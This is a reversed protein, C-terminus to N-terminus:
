PSTTSTPGTPRRRWGTTTTSWSCRTRAAPRSGSASRRGRARASAPAPCCRRSPHRHHEAPGGRDGVGEHGQGCCRGQWWVDLRTRGAPVVFTQSLISDGKTATLAGARGARTGRHHHQTSTTTRGSSAWGSLRREFTGNSVGTRPKPATTWITRLPTARAAHGLPALGYADQLTRLLTYHNMWESYLGPRVRQGVLLTAIQNVTGGANEDFTVVLLSNHTMAWRAYGDLHTRMWADGTAVSCDHMDHCMDPTVFSVTPLRSYDTPFASFPQNVSAPLNSFDVWPNHKREYDGQRCGTWGAAPLDEAYGTFSLGAARLQSGLNPKAGLDQCHNTTVGHQDGSFMAVYNPQSPHTVGYSQSMNAGRAALSNLYPAQASGIVSGRDKNELVVVVVHDPRPVQGGATPTVPVATAQEPLPGAATLGGAM